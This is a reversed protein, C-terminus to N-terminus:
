LYVLRRLRSVQGSHCRVLTTPTNALSPTLKHRTRVADFPLTAHLRAARAGSLHLRWVYRVSWLGKTMFEEDHAKARKERLWKSKQRDATIEFAFGAVYVFLGIADTIKFAPLSAFAAAPVSNLAIVPM